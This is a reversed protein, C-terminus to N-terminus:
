PRQCAGAEGSHNELFGKLETQGLELFPALGAEIRVFKNKGKPVGEQRHLRYVQGLGQVLSWLEECHLELKYGEGSKLSALSHETTPTWEDNKGKKQYVFSGRVSASPSKTNEVITPLFVLRVKDTSRLPIADCDATKSSTSTTHIEKM